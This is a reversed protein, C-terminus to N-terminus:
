EIAYIGKINIENIGPNYPALAPEKTICLWHRFPGSYAGFTVTGNDDGVGPENYKAAFVDYGVNTHPYPLKVLLGWTNNGVVQARINANVWVLKPGVHAIQLEGPTSLATNIVYGGPVPNLCDWDSAAVEIPFSRAVMGAKNIPNQYCGNADLAQFQAQGSGAISTGEIEITTPSPIKNVVFYRGGIEISEGEYLHSTATVGITTKGANGPATFNTTVEAIPSPCCYPPPLCAPM